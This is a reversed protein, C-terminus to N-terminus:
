ALADPLVVPLLVRFNSGEGSKSTVSISGKCHLLLQKVITLGLGAGTNEGITSRGRYFSDFIRPIEHNPIGLGTDQFELKIYEKQLTAKVQVQGGTPTFKLSNQLLNILIQRLWIELCSIPPLGTPIIYGLQIGKERAIPQYTSVVGPLIDALQVPSMITSQSENELQILELLGTMMSNQRDCETNLLQIYRQRQTPKLQGSDLLKLATKMNTLPTRLEQIVRTIFENKDSFCDEPSPPTKSTTDLTKKLEDPSLSVGSNSISFESMQTAHIMEETCQLQKYLLQTLIEQENACSPNPFQPERFELVDRSIADNVIIAEKIIEFVRKIVKPELTFITLLQQIQYQNNQNLQEPDNSYAVILGSIDESIILLFYERELQSGSALQIPVLQCTEIVNGNEDAGNAIELLDPESGNCLYIKHSVGVQQQYQKIEKLWDKSPPLKVWLTASIKRDSLVDLLTGVLSQVTDPSIKLPQSPKIADLILQYLSLDPTSPLNM